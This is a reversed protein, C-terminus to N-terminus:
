LILQTATFATTKVLFIELDATKNGDWDLQLTGGLAPISNKKFVVEKQKGSFTQLRSFTTTGELPSLDIKDGSTFGYIKDRGTDSPTSDSLTQYTYVNKGIGGILFDGGAGGTIRDNGALGIILDRKSLSSDSNDAIDKGTLTDNSNLGVIRSKSSLLDNSTLGLKASQIGLNALSAYTYNPGQDPSFSDPTFAGVIEIKFRLTSNAPIKERAVSGYALAPPITLEIVEGVRRNLLGQEWGQIVNKEGLQLSFLPRKVTNGQTDVTTAESFTSFNWNADFEAGNEGQSNVLNGQYRVTLLDGSTVVLGTSPRLITTRLLSSM